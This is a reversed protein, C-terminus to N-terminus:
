ITALAEFPYRRIIRSKRAGESEIEAMYGIRVVEVNRSELEEIISKTRQGDKLEAFFLVAKSGDKVKSADTVVCSHLRDALAAALMGAAGEETLICDFIERDFMGMLGAMAEKFAEPDALIGSYDGKSIIDEIM